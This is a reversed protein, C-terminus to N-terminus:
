DENDNVEEAHRTEFELDDLWTRATRLRVDVKELAPVVAAIIDRAHDIGRLLAAIEYQDINIKKAM